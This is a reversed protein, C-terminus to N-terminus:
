VFSLLFAIYGLMKSCVTKLHLSSVYSKNIISKFRSSDPVTAPPFTTAKNYLAFTHLM